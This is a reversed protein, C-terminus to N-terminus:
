ARALSLNPGLINGFWFRGMLPVSISIVLRCIIKPATEGRVGRPGGRAQFHKPEPQHRAFSPEQSVGASSARAALHGCGGGGRYGGYRWGRRVIRSIPAAAILCEVKSFEPFSVLRPPLECSWSKSLSELHKDADLSDRYKHPRQMDPDGSPGSGYIGKAAANSM